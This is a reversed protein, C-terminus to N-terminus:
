GVYVRLFKDFWTRAEDGIDFTSDTVVLSISMTRRVSSEADISYSCSSAEGSLDDIVRLQKDLLEIRCNIQKNPILLLDYDEKMPAYTAM